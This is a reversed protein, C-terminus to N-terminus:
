EDEGGLQSKLENVRSLVMERWVEDQRNDAWNLPYEKLEDIRAEKVAQAILNTLQTTARDTVQAMHDAGGDWDKNLSKLILVDGYESCVQKLIEGIQEDLPKM